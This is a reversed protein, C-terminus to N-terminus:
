LLKVLLEALQEASVNKALIVGNPDLVVNQPLSSVSYLSTISEDKDWIHQWIGVGDKEIAKEWAAKTEDQSISLIEFGKTNYRDYLEVFKPNEIRCARCWAAWFDILLIKGKYQDLSIEENNRDITEIKPPVKGIGTVKAQYVQRELAMTTMAEPSEKKFVELRQEIFKLEKNFDSFQLAHYAAPGTGMEILLERFEVLFNQIAIKSQAQLENLKERDNAKMAEDVEKKLAGFYKKKLERDQREFEVIKLSTSSGEIRDGGTTRQVKITSAGEISLHIFHKEDFSLEYLNAGKFHTSFTFSKSNRLDISDLSVYNLETPSFYKLIVKKDTDLAKGEIKVKNQANVAVASFLLLMYIVNRM